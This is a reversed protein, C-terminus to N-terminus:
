DDSLGLANIRARLTNRNVGLLAATRLKNGSTVSLALRILPREVQELVNQHIKDGEDGGKLLDAMVHRHLLTEIEAEFSSNET